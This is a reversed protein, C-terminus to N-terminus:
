AAYGGNMALPLILGGGGGSIDFNTELIEVSWAHHRIAVSMTDTAAAASGLLSASDYCMVKANSFVSKVRETFGSPTTDGTASSPDFASFRVIRSNRRCNLLALTRSSANNNVASNTNGVILHKNNDPRAIYYALHSANTWTGSVETTSEARKVGIISRRSAATVNISLQDWGAPYSADSAGDRYAMVVIIDNPQHSAFTISDSQAAGAAVYAIGM